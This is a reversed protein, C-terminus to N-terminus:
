STEARQALMNTVYPAAWSSLGASSTGGASPLASAATGSTNPLTNTGTTATTTM